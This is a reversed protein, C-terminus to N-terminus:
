LVRADARPSSVLSLVKTATVPLLPLDLAASGLHADARRLTDHLM